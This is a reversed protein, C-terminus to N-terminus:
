LCTMDKKTTNLEKMCHAAGCLDCKVHPCRETIRQHIGAFMGEVAQRHTEECGSIHKVICSRLSPVNSCICYTLNICDQSYCLYQYFLVHERLTHCFCTIRYGRVGGKEGEIATNPNIEFDKAFSSNCKKKDIWMCM